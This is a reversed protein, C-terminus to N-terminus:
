SHFPNTGPINLLLSLSLSLSLSLPSFISLVLIMEWSVTISLTKASKFAAAAISEEQKTSSRNTNNKFGEIPAQGRGRTHLLFSM